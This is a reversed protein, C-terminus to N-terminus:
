LLTSATRLAKLLTLTQVLLLELHPVGVVSADSEAVTVTVPLTVAVKGYKLPDLTVKWEMKKQFDKLYNLAPNDHQKISHNMFISKSQTQCLAEKEGLSLFESVLLSRKPAQSQTGTM